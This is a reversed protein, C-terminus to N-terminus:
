GGAGISALTQLLEMVGEPGPVVRDAATLLEEPTEPGGVAVALTEVGAARLRRLAAFAPLDGADDGVFCVWTLGPALQDIVTGKDTPGPPRVEWSMKGRHAVLGSSAAQRAAFEEAWGALTPSERYHLTVALGKEEVRLGTPGSTQAEEALAHIAARWRDAEPDVDISRGDATRRELGYLGVLEAGGADALQAALFDVPRGSIVAVRGFRDALRALLLGAGPLARAQDPVDVIPALTGDFDVFV